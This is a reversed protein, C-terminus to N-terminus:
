LISNINIIKNDEKNICLHFLKGEYDFFKNQYNEIKEDKILDKLNIEKVKKINYGIDDVELLIVKKETLLIINNNKNVMKVNMIKDDNEIFDM